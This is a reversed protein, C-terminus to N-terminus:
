HIESLLPGYVERLYAVCDAYLEPYDKGCTESIPRGNMYGTMVTEAGYLDFLYELLVMSESYSLGNGDTQPDGADRGRVDAVSTDDGRALPNDPLLLEGIGLARERARDDYLGESLTGNSETELRYVPWVTKWFTYVKGPVESANPFADDFDAADEWPIANSVARRSYHDALAECVWWLDSDMYPNLIVHVIEHWVASERVLWISQTSARSPKNQAQVSLDITFGESFRTEALEAYSPIEERIQAFVFEMGYYLKCVFAYLEDPTQAFSGESVNITLGDTHIVCRYKTDSEATMAAAQAHGEPLTLPTEIGLAAQWAPLIEATSVVRRFADFGESELMFATLSAATKAAANVTEEEAVDPLFYVAACSATLAHAEDAYYAILDSEDVTDFVYAKLGVQKWPVAFGYCAGCLAERYAGNEIDPLTCFVCDRLLVPRKKLMREVVYVTVRGPKEGTRAGIALVESVVTEAIARLTEDSGNAGNELHVTAYPTDIYRTQFPASFGEERNHRGDAIEAEAILAAPEPTPEATPAATPEETPESTIENNQATKGCGLAAAFLFMCALLLIWGNKM